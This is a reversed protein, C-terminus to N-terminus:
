RSPGTTSDWSGLAHGKGAPSAFRALWQIIRNGCSDKLDPPTDSGLPGSESPPPESAPPVILSPTPSAPPTTNRPALLGQPRGRPGVNKRTMRHTLPRQLLGPVVLIQRPEEEGEEEGEHGQTLSRVTPAVPHPCSGWGPIACLHGHHGRPLADHDLREM